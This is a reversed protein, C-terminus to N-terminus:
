KIRLRRALNHLNGRHLGLSRAAASWNGGNQSVARLILQRQFDDVVKRLPERKVKISFDIEDQMASVLPLPSDGFLDNSFDAEEIVVTDAAGSRAMAKLAARALVNELERVNGPWAYGQLLREVGDQLRLQAAGIRRRIRGCFFRCLDPIDETRERLPPVTLPYVNLRHYLDPRFREAAVEKSLDRNTAALLRVNVSLVRDSGLRTVEWEQIVRLLKSQVSVPLEGIEDLFLTGGDALEFKGVRDRTAGTFAGTVHGFLESEALSEPLAACNLTLMPQDRRNSAEHIGRAALEKGVGTEGQILVSFDSRAVLEMERRLHTMARGEGVMRAGQRLQIDRMLDQAIHGQREANKELAAMLEATQLHAGAIAGVARLFEPRLDDFAGPRLADATLAGILRGEALLPCGLCAHVREFKGTEATILGDFPDPMATDAPFVVPEMSNCIVSLRPHEAVPFRRDRADAVLGRTSLPVLYDGDLRLLAAADFPIAKSLAELLRRYRDAAQLASTLKEGLM